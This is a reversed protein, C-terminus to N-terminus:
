FPLFSELRSLINTTALLRKLDGITVLILLTILLTMGLANIWHELSPKPRKRTITEYLVFLLRGGDLAPFPLINLVALNVSLIGIFQLVAIPGTQAVGSTIQLIGIPGAVDRPIEGRSVLNVFMEKLGGLVLGTWAFAEKFGEKAGRFPMQWFPFHKIEMNTVVVGLPGEGEPPSPRPVLFFLLEEGERGITLALPEGKKEEVTDIFVDIEKLAQGDVALISDGEELGAEEAPSDPLLGVIKIHDTRTPIGMFSYVISFVVVALLFNAIVGACIVAARAKKSKAWFANKAETKETLEEGHLRVFGGFPLLNVSYITEGIRKSFLRPPYGFGFEEVKIGVRKAILFHGLEHVLILVSLVILFVILTLLM